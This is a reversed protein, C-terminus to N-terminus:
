FKESVVLSCFRKALCLTQRSRSQPFFQSIGFREEFSQDPFLQRQFFINFHFCFTNKNVSILAHLQAFLDVM